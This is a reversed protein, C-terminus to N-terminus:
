LETPAIIPVNLRGMFLRLVWSPANYAFYQVDATASDFLYTLDEECYYYNGFPYEM